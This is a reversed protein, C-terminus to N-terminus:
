GCLLDPGQLGFLYDDGGGGYLFDKFPTGSLIDEHNTGTFQCRNTIRRVGDTAIDLLYLGWRLCERGSSFAIQSGDPSWAAASYPHVDDARWRQSSGDASMTWLDYGYPENRSRDRNSIFAITDGKWAPLRDEGQASRTLNRMDTGDTRVSYIEFNGGRNTEFAITDGDPSWTPNVSQNPGPAIVHFGSGDRDVLGIGGEGANLMVGFALRTRDPSWVAVGNSQTPKVYNPILTRRTDVGLELVQLSSGVTAAISSGAWSPFAGPGDDGVPGGPADVAVTDRESGFAVALGNPDWSPPANSARRGNGSVIEEDSGPRVIGLSEPPQDCGPQQRMFAIAGGAPSWAPFRDHWATNGNCGARAPTVGGLTLTAGVLALGILGRM